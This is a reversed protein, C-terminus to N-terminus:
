MVFNRIVILNHNDKKDNRNSKNTRINISKLNAKTPNLLNCFLDLIVSSGHAKSPIRKNACERNARHRLRRPHM